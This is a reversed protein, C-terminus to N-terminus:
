HTWLPPCHHTVEREVDPSAVMQLKGKKFNKNIIKKMQPKRKRSTKWTELLPHAKPGDKKTSTNIRNCMHMPYSNAEAYVYMM